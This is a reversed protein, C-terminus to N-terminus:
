SRSTSVLAVWKPPWLRASDRWDGSPPTIPASMRSPRSVGSQPSRFSIVPAKHVSGRFPLKRLRDVLDRLSDTNRASAVVQDGRELAALAWGRGFGRTTGTIFWTKM